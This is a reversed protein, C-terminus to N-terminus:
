REIIQLTIYLLYGFYVFPTFAIMHKRTCKKFVILVLSFLASFIFAYLLVSINFQFPLYSGITIFILGDGKGISKNTVMSLFIILIGVFVSFIFDFLNYHLTMSFLYFSLGIISFILSLFLNINKNKIDTYLCVSLYILM